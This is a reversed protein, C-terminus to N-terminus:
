NKKDDALEKRVVENVWQQITMGSPLYNKLHEMENMSIELTMKIQHGNKQNMWREILDKYDVDTKLTQLITVAMLLDGKPSMHTGDITLVRVKKDEKHQIFQNFRKNLDVLPLNRKKAIERLADNYAVLNKNAVHEPEEVVPTASLIIVKIGAKDCKDIITNINKIYNELPVGPNDIGNPADNVGCSLFMWSPKKAIVDKDVRKLMNVSTHGSVGAPVATVELGAERLGDMVLNVYGLPNKTGLETISDGLFAIKDGDRFPFDVACLTTSSITALAAAFISKMKNGM